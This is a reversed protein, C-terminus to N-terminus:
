FSQMVWAFELVVTVPVYLSPATRFLAVAMKKRQVDSEGTNVPDVYFRALINTDVAIV